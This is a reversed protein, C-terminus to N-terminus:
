GYLSRWCFILSVVYLLGSVAFVSRFDIIEYIEYIGINHYCASIGVCKIMIAVVWMIIVSPVMIGISIMSFLIFKKV